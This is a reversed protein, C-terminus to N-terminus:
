KWLHLNIYMGSICLLYKVETQTYLHVKLDTVTTSQLCLLLYLHPHVTLVPCVDPQPAFNAAFRFNTEM